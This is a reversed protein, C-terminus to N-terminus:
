RCIASLSLQSAMKQCAAEVSAQWSGATEFEKQNYAFIIGRSSNVIAGLGEEDFGPMVDDVGGGQAGFGPILFLTHPMRERLEGLQQPYTAGVVAGVIGYGSEGVTKASLEEVVDAVKHFLRTNSDELSQQDQFDGSGPNSTKVLVFVGNDNSQAADVFPKLTDSGMYPNVTLANSDIGKGTAGLYAQAYATATSGIDGRKADMIVLLNKSRAYGVVEALALSGSPGLAEFFASQPKVVPVLDAVVDVVGFCFERFANAVSTPDDADVGNRIEDPLSELRPDLGVCVVNGKFQISDILQDAFNM